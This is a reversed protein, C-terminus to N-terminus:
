EDRPDQHGPQASQPEPPCNHPYLYDGPQGYLRRPSTPLNYHTSVTRPHLFANRTREVHQKAAADRKQELM